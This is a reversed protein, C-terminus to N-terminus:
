SYFFEERTIRGNATHYVAVEQMQSREGSPKMTVDMWFIVAFRDEGHLYPGEVRAEHVEANESWWAHKGRIAELGAVERPMGGAEQAEVSVADPAYLADLNELEKGSRCGEVLAEALETVTM